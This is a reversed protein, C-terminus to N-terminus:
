RWLEDEEEPIEPLKKPPAPPQFRGPVSTPTFVSGLFVCLRFMQWALFATRIAFSWTLPWPLGFQIAYLMTVITTVIGIFLAFAHPPTRGVQVSLARMEEIEDRTFRTFFAVSILDTLTRTGRWFLTFERKRDDIFEALRAKESSWDTLERKWALAQHRCWRKVRRWRTLRVPELPELPIFPTKELSLSM